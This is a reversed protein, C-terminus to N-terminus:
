YRYLFCFQVSLERSIVSVADKEKATYKLTIIYRRSISSYALCSALILTTASESESFDRDPWDGSLLDPTEDDFCLGFGFDFDGPVENKGIM